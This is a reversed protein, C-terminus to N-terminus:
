PESSRFRELQGRYYGLNETAASVAEMITEIAEQRLGNAYYAEALTDLYVPSREVSVAKKALALARDPDRRDKEPETLMLWALNNLSIADNEERAVIREYLDRAEGTKGAEHCVMALNRLLLLNHPEAKLEERLVREVIGMDLRTKVTSFNLFYGLGGVAIIYILFSILVMRNHRRILDPNTLTQRLCAVRERISFHHWSPLDRSKGGAFAIKELSSVTYEPTGMALASYLDAQREFHRMFFGMVYRFYVLLVLLMPLSLLLYFLSTFHTGGQAALGALSPHLFFLYLSLDYLGYSIAVFGLFFVLYLILHRYKVHAAEHAMVAKLENLSLANLLADSILIYRYRSVLGMVGATMMKGEFIPWRLLDRYRFGLEGLFAKLRDIRESPEVPSCGWFIRILGPLFVMLVSLFVAFLLLQGEVRNLFGEPSSLPSLGILDYLLSLFFWPFLIPLNLRLNSIVFAFRVMGPRYVAEYVPHALYWVTSFCFLLFALAAAGHAVSFPRLVPVAELWYKMDLAYVALTFVLISVISHKFILRHYRATVSGDYPNGQVIRRMLRGCDLRCLLAFASWAALLLGLSLLLPRQPVAGPQHVNFVLLAVIFYIINNFM